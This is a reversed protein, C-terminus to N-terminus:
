AASDLQPAFTRRSKLIITQAHPPVDDWRRAKVGDIMIALGSAYFRAEYDHGRRSFNVGMGGGLIAIEANSPVVLEVGKTPYKM